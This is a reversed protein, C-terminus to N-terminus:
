RCYDKLVRPARPHFLRQAARLDACGATRKGLEIRAVGRHYLADGDDPRLVLCASLDSEAEAFAHNQFHLLGRQKFAEPNLMDHFLVSDLDQFAAETRGNEINIFARTLRADALSSDIDIARNLYDMARDEEGLRLHCVGLKYQTLAYEPYLARSREFFALARKEKQKLLYIDGLVYHVGPDEPDNKLSKRAWKKAPRLEGAELFEVARNLQYDAQSEQAFLAGAAFLCTLVAFIRM